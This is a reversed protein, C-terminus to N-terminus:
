RYLLNFKDPNALADLEIDVDIGPWHFQSPSLFQVNFICDITAKKFEPYDDFSIFYEKQDVIMWFGLSSINTVSNTLTDTGNKVSKMKKKM